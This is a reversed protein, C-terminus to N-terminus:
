SHNSPKTEDNPIFVTAVLSSRELFLSLDCLVTGVSTEGEREDEVILSATEM